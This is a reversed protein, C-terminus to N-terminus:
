ENWDLQWIDLAKFFDRGHQDFWRLIQKKRWKVEAMYNSPDFFSYNFWAPNARKLRMNEEDFREIVTYFFNIDQATRRPQKQSLNERARILELCM